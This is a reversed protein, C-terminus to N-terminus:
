NRNLEDKFGTFRPDAILSRNGLARPGIEARGNFWVIPAQMIDEAAQEPHFESIEQIFQAYKNEKLLQSLSDRDSNGYYLM